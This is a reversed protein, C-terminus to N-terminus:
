EWHREIRCDATSMTDFHKSCSSDADCGSTWLAARALSVLVWVERGDVQTKVYVDHVHEDDASTNPLKVREPFKPWVLKRHGPMQALQFMEDRDAPETTACDLAKSLHHVKDVVDAECYTKWMHQLQELLSKLKVTDRICFYEIARLMILKTRRQVVYPKWDGYRHPQLAWWDKYKRYDASSAYVHTIRSSGQSNCLDRITKCIVDAKEFMNYADHWGPDQNSIEEDHYWEQFETADAVFADITAKESALVQGVTDIQEATCVIKLKGSAHHRSRPEWEIEITEQAAALGASRLTYILARVIPFEVTGLDVWTPKDRWEGFGIYIHLTSIM